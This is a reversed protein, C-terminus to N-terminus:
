EREKCNSDRTEEHKNNNHKIQDSENKTDSQHKDCKDSTPESMNSISVMKQHPCESSLSNLSVINEVCEDCGEACTLYKFVTNQDYLTMNAGQVLVLQYHITLLCYIM